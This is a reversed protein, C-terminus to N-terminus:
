ELGSVNELGYELTVLTNLQANVFCDDLKTAWSDSNDFLCLCKKLFLSECQWM